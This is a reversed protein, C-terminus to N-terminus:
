HASRCATPDHSPVIRPRPPLSLACPDVNTRLRNCSLKPVRRFCGPSPEASARFINRSLEPTRRFSRARLGVQSRFKNRSLVPARRFSRDRPGVRPRFKSRSLEPRHELARDSDSVLRWFIEPRFIRFVSKCIQVRDLRQTAINRHNTPIM